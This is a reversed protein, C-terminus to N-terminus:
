SVNLFAFKDYKDISKNILQLSEKSEKLEQEIKLLLQTMEDIKQQNM